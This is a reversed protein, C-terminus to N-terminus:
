YRYLSVFSSGNNPCVPSNNKKKFFPFKTGMRMMDVHVPNDERSCFMSCSVFASSFRNLQGTWLNNMEFSSHTSVCAVPRMIGSNSEVGSRALLLLLLLLLLFLLLLLLLLLLLAASARRTLRTAPWDERQAPCLLQLQLRYSVQVHWCCYSPTHRDGTM